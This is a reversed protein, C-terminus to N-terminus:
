REHEPHERDAAPRDRGDPPSAVSPRVPGADFYVLASDTFPYTAIRPIGWAVDVDPWRGAPVVVPDHVSAGVTRAEVDVQWTTVQHDGFAPILLVEHPPTNPLPNDTMRNAYGNPESRDWLMQILSLLLPKLMQDPYSPDLIAEYQDFDISRPLLVSYNMAPVGLYARTFDPSIATLAGGLIGGQSIGQYYLNSEDITSPSNIDNADVHFADDTVFGTPRTMLRGLLLENLLGQQVRDTLEPFRGLNSLIGIPTRSTRAPSASRM